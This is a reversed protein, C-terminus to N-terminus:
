KAVIILRNSHKSNFSNLQYDGFTHEIKFGVKELYSTMKKLDLYKVRETYSHNEGDAFFSIHKLIFGNTIEKSINFTINDIVKTEKAVLNEKVL